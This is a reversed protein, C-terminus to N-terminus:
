RQRKKERARGYLTKIKSVLFVHRLTPHIPPPPSSSRLSPLSLGSPMIHRCTSSCRQHRQVRAGDFQQLMFFYIYLFFFRARESSTFPLTTTSRSTVGISSRRPQKSSASTAASRPTQSCTLRGPSALAVCWKAGCRSAGRLATSCASDCYDGLSTLTEPLTISALTSCGSFCYDGLRTLSVSLTISALKSCGYFCAAGLRTLSESLTISALTVCGYFCNSGISTLSEPLTISALTSCNCFCYNGISTLAKPLTVNILKKNLNLEKRWYYGRGSRQYYWHSFDDFCNNGLSTFSDPITVSSAFCFQNFYRHTVNFTAANKFYVRACRLDFNDGDCCELLAFTMIILVLDAPLFELMMCKTSLACKSSSREMDRRNTVVCM